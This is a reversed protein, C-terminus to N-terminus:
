RHVELAEFFRGQEDRDFVAWAPSVHPMLVRGLTIAASVPVAAFLDIRDVKGHNAEVSALFRRLERDFNTLAAASSILNPNPEAPAVPDLTYVTHTGAMGDPLDELRITGSLNVLLAVSGPYKGQNAQKTEFAPTPPPNEPWRWANADDVRQRQFIQTPVKDDLQAGLHVLVPIRAFGFIALRVINGGRIGDNIRQVLDNVYRTCTAFHDPTGFDPVQRLDLDHESRFSWPLLTPFLGAATVADLVTDYTLEPSVGRVPGVVRVVFAQRDAGIATLRRIRQEHERKLRALVDVTYRGVVGGQDIPKHCNRCLLLLNSAERRQDSSLTSRGRPSEKGWGVNHALEGILVPEGLDENELVLRNCFTCRGAAAAWVAIKTRETPAIRSESNTM